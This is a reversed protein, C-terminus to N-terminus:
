KEAGYFKLYGRAEQESMFCMYTQQSPKKDYVSEKIVLYYEGIALIQFRIGITDLPFDSPDYIQDHLVTVPLTEGYRTKITM